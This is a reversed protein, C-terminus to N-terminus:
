EEVQEVLEEEDIDEDIDEDDGDDMGYWLHDLLVDSEAMLTNVEQQTLSGVGQDVRKTLLTEVSTLISTPTTSAATNDTSQQSAYLSSSDSYTHRHIRNQNRTPVVVTTFGASFEVVVVVFVLM